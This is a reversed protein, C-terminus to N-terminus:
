NESEFLSTQSIDTQGYTITEFHWGESDVYCESMCFANRWRSQRMRANGQYYRNVMQRVPYALDAHLKRTTPGLVTRFCGVLLDTAQLLQCDDYGQSDGRTHDGRRDDIIDDRPSISCYTRLGKLRGIVRNTDIHRKYHEYGDFHVKSICIPEDEYGLFHLGGKLGMRFTTEIKSAHDPYLSMNQHCERERFLIFKAGILGTFRDYEKRGRIRQGLFVPYTEGKRRSMLSAVGIQVWADACDHLPGSRKVKKITLTHSYGTNQRAQDLYTLLSTKHLQPVLFMGHWYGGEQSEDHYLEYDM